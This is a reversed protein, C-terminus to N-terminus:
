GLASLALRVDSAIDSRSVGQRQMNMISAIQGDLYLAAVRPSISLSLEGNACAKEIWTEFVRHSLTRFEDVQARIRDGFRDRCQCIDVSLCANPMGYEQRGRLIFDTLAVMATEGPQDQALIEHLPALTTKHYDILVAQKLRDESAIRQIAVTQTGQRASM